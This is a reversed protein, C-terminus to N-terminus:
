KIKALVEKIKEIQESIKANTKEIFTNEKTETQKESEEQDQHSVEKFEDYYEPNKSDVYSFLSACAAQNKADNARNVRANSSEQSNLINCDTVKFLLNDFLAFCKETQVTGQVVVNKLPSLSPIDLTAHITNEDDKLPTNEAKKITNKVDKNEKNETNEKEEIPYLSTMQDTWTLDMKAQRITMNTRNFFTATYACSSVVGESDLVPKIDHIKFLVADPKSIGAEEFPAAKDQAYSLGATLTLAATSLILTKQFKKM